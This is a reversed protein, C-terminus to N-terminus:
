EMYNKNAFYETVIEKQLDTAQQILTNGDTSFVMDRVKDQFMLDLIDLEKETYCYIHNDESYDGWLSPNYALSLSEVTGKLAVLGWSFM